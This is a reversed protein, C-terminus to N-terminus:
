NSVTQLITKGGQPLMIGNGKRAKTEMNAKHCVRELDINVSERESIM